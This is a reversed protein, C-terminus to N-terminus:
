KIVRAGGLVLHDGIGLNSGFDVLIELDRVGSVNLDLDRPEDVGRVDTELLTEDDGRIVVHVDAMARGDRPLNRPNEDIGMVARLQRYDGGLRYVLRTKSHIWLGRDYIEDGLKFPHGYFSRDRRYTFDDGPFYPTYKMERPELDSLYRIKGRSFDLVRVGDLPLEATGGALLEAQVRGDDLTVNRALLQDRGALTIECAATEDSAERDAYLIGFVRERKVDVQQGQLLFKVTKGGVNGVTGDYHELIDEKKRVVLYDKEIDRDLLKQWADEINNDLPALRVSRISSLPLQLTGLRPSTVTVDRGAVSVDQVHLVSGDVLRVTASPADTASEGSRESNGFRVQMVEDMALSHSEGDRQLEVTQASLQQLRGAHTDGALTTVEVQPGSVALVLLASWVSPTM